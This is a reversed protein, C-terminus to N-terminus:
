KSGKSKEPAARVWVCRKATECSGSVCQGGPGCRHVATNRTETCQGNAKGGLGGCRTTSAEVCLAIAEESCVMGDCEADSSCTSVECWTGNHSTDLASGRPCDHYAIPLADALALGLLLTV